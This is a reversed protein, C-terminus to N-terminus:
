ADEYELFEVKGAIDIGAAAPHGDGRAVFGKVKTIKRAIESLDVTSGIKRRLCVKTGGDDKYFRCAIIEESRHKLMEPM